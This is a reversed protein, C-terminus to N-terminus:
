WSPAVDESPETTLRRPQGGDASIVYIDPNGARNPDDSRSDFAIWRGDPSWRPTGTLYPGRDILLMPNAGDRDCVWIGFGGSRNSAFVIKQGDPSYDPGNDGFTSAILSTPASTEDTSNLELRWINLDDLAQTYTLRNGQRSIAPSFASQGITPLREPTGSTVPIRWLNYISSGRRSAFVIERSDS